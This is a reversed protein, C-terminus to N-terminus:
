AAAQITPALTIEGEFVTVAPGTLYVPASGGAWGISLDGGRTEVTVAAWRGQDDDVSGNFTCLYAAVPEFDAPVTGPEPADPHTSTLDTQTWAGDPFIMWNFNLNPAQCDVDAVLQAVPTDTAAPYGPLGACGGLLLALTAAGALTFRVSQQQTM